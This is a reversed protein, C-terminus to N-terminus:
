SHHTTEPKTQCLPCTSSKKKRVLLLDLFNSGVVGLTISQNKTLCQYELKKRGVCGTLVMLPGRGLVHARPILGGEVNELGAPNWGGETSPQIGAIRHAPGGGLGM